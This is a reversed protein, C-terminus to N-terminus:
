LSQLLLDHAGRTMTVAERQGHGASAISPKAPMCRRFGSWKARSAGCGKDRWVPSHYSSSKVLLTLRSSPQTYVHGLVHKVWRHLSTYGVQATTMVPRQEM